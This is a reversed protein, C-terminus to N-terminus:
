DWPLSEPIQGRFSGPLVLSLLATRSRASQVFTVERLIFDYPSYIMAGPATLRITDDPQWLRGAPTRWSDVQVQYTATGAFMRGTKDRTASEIDGTVSDGADFVLPRLTGTLRSNRVTYQAGVRGISVPSIGTIHSYYSQANFSASVSLVPSRDGSLTAVPQALGASRRFSLDGASTNGIVLNRQNALTRMFSLLTQTPEVRVEPFVAISEQPFEVDFGFMGILNFVILDLGANSFQIPYGNASATCDGVVACRAYCSVSITRATATVDPSVNMMSGTFVVDDGVQVVVERFSFPRFTDRFEPQDPEFPARFEVADFSDFSRRLTVESWFRFRRGDIRITVQDPDVPPEASTPEPRLQPIVLTVGAQLPQQQGPNARQIRGAETEVGYQARAISQFTDGSVTTYSSM